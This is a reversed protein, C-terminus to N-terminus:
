FQDFWRVEGALYSARELVIKFDPHDCKIAKKTHVPSNLHGFALWYENTIVSYNRALGEADHNVLFM